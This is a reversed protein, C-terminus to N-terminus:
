IASLLPPGRRTVGALFARRGPTRVLFFRAGVRRVPRPAPVIVVLVLRRRVWRSLEGAIEGLRALVREGRHLAAVTVVAAVAHMAWMLADGTIAASVPAADLLVPPGHHHGGTAVGGASVTGVVFLVHFLFQSLAVSVGLRWMSLRRGALLTCVFVSLVLPVAIGLWGPVQGGASVHSLLAVFTAVAAGTTGRTVRSARSARMDSM